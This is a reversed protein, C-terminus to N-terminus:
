LDLNFDPRKPDPRKLDPRKPDPRKPDPRKKKDNEPEVLKKQQILDMFPNPM